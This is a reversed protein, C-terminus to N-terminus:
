GNSGVTITKGHHNIKRGEEEDDDDGETRMMDMYTHLIVECFPILQAFILWIDILKVYATPPLAGSVSIFLTTLVLLSTLNVTVVAEFFFDKFFNTAYVITLVLITPLYVTLIANLLRRKFVLTMQLGADTNSANKYTLTWNTIIYQTLVTESEMMLNNPTLEMVSTELLRVILNVTCVQTDFPYLQLQYTCKFTKTYVQEFTIRNFQGEFINIEEVNDDTSGIYDGERTLTLETDETGKTAENRETNDFVLFPIWLRQVDQLALANQSRTGKLNFYKIRYDYWELVLRFKLTYIHNVEAIKIIDIVSMSVNINVPINVNNIKDFSFPAIKKNYNDKMFILKCNDEDSEDVCNSTQDCRQEIDICQGDNCTFQGASCTTLKIPKVRSSGVVTNCKDDRVGSFDVENVGLMLSAEPAISVAVSTPDKRDFWVWSPITKNYYLVSTRHGLYM